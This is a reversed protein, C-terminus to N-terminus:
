YYYSEVNVRGTSALIDLMSMACMNDTYGSLMIYGNGNFSASGNSNFMIVGDDTDTYVYDFENPLTDQTIISDGEDFTKAALNVKDNFVTFTRSQEDIYLGYPEKSSIANSRAMKIKSVLENNGSRFKQRDWANSFRPVALTAVIGIVVTTILLEILTFGRSENPLMNRLKKMDKVQEGITWVM